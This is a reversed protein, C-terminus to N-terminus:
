GVDSASEARRRGTRRRTRKKDLMGHDSLKRRLTNRNVGLIEAAKLQNGGTAKMVLDLMPKEVRSMVDEYLGSLPYGDVRRLFAGLKSKVMEEFSMQELPVREAVSPLVADVDGAEIRRKTARYVLRRAVGKLEAVNGPWPYKVLRDYARTSVTMKNKGVERGYERILVATLPPIDAVRDRLPPVVISRRTFREYLDRAFVGAEVAYSLDTDCSGVVLVDDAEDRGSRDRLVRELRRQEVRPLECLDKILLSGGAAQALTTQSTAGPADRLMNAPASGGHVNVFEGTRRPSAFHLIRAILERGTGAEGLVLVPEGSTAFEEVACVVARMSESEAVLLSLAKKGARTRSM